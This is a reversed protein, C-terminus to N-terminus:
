QSLQARRSKSWLLDTPTQIQVTLSNSSRRGTKDHHWLGAIYNEEAEEELSTNLRTLQNIM